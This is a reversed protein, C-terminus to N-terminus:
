ERSLALPCDFLSCGFVPARRALPCGGTLLAEISARGVNDGEHGRQSTIGGSFLLSGAPDYVLVHGSTALGFRGAEVGDDDRFAQVGPIAAASNWLDTQEWGEPFSTPRLFLVHAAAQNPCHAMLRALEALSARTCPCRPHGGMVLTPRDGALVIRSFSPWQGSPSALDDPSTEYASLEVFGLAVLPVWVTGVLFLAVRAWPKTPMKM